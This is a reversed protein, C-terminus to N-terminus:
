LYPEAAEALTVGDLIESAEGGPANHFDQHM